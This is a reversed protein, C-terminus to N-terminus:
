MFGALVEAGLWAKQQRCAHWQMQLRLFLRQNYLSAGKVVQAFKTMQHHSRCAKAIQCPVAMLSGNRHGQSQQM